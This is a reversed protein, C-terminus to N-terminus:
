DGAIVIRYGYDVTESALLDAHRTAWAGSELDARLREIGPEVDEPALAAFTSSAARIGPDLYAEPRRWFAAQFGDTFDHPIEFTEVSHADLNRVVQPILSIRATELQTIAPVYEDVIWLRRPHDPDWTFVVQRRSVRRMDALGRTVDGWHHVTLVAMAADFAGDPFPLHEAVGRGRREGPHQALMLSSPDRAVVTRDAPEYAGTGAGINLVTRADGLANAIVAALRPDTRRHTPYGVGLQDYADPNGRQRVTM